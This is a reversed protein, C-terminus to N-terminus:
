VGIRAGLARASLLVAMAVAVMLLSVTAAAEVNGVNMELFVTTPLVETKMRTAGAFVLIPGFEGLARAWALTGAAIIGQKVEPLAVWQFAQRRTCGLVLAVRERRDDTQEFAVRMTRIAFASAVAWQALIVGPIDFTLGRRGPGEMGLWRMIGPAIDNFWALVTSVIGELWRGIDTQNFLLLLALGVVIPPLVIPVDVLADVLARGRFPVRALLYGAPVAVVVSLVATITCTVLSLKIAWIIEPSDLAAKIHTGDVFMLNAVLLSVILLVFVGTTGLLASIFPLNERGSLRLPTPFSM